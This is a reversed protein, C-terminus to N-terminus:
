PAVKQDCGEADTLALSEQFLGREETFVGREKLVMFLRTVEQRAAASIAEWDCLQSYLAACPLRYLSKEDPSGKLLVEREDPHLGLSLVAASVAELGLCEQRVLRQSAQLIERPGVHSGHDLMFRHHLPLKHGTARKVRSSMARVRLERESRKQCQQKKKTRRAPMDASVPDPLSSQPWSASCVCSYILSSMFCAALCCSTPMRCPLGKTVFAPLHIASSGSQHDKM